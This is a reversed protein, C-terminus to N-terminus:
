RAAIVTSSLFDGNDSALSAQFNETSGNSVLENEPAESFNIAESFSGSLNLIGNAASLSEGENTGSEGFIKFWLQDGTASFETVLINVPSSELSGGALKSEGAIQAAAFINGQADLTIATPSGTFGNLWKLWLVTGESDAKGLYIKGELSGVTIISGDSTTVSEAHDPFTSDSARSAAVGAGTGSQVVALTQQLTLTEQDYFKISGSRSASNANPLVTYQINANNTGSAPTVNTIWDVDAQAIWATNATLTVNSKGGSAPFGSSTPTIGYFPAAGTQVIRVIQQVVSDSDLIRIYGQREKGSNADVTYSITANTTGSAPLLDHIWSSDSQATWGCRATLGVSIRGGSSPFLLYTYGVTFNGSIGAQSVTFQSRVVSDADLVKVTAIRSGCSSNAAVSFNIKANGVGSSPSVGNLWNADSQLHWGATAFLQANSSGGESTFNFNTVTFSYSAAPSSQGITLTQKVVHNADLIQITGTRATVNTNPAVSYTITANGSGASPSIGGIWPVDSVATWSALATLSVNTTAGAAGFVANTYNLSHSLPIGSQSIVFTKRLASNGDYIKISGSRGSNSSNAAVTFLITSNDSGNASSTVTVWNADSQVSWLCNATLIVSGNGGNTPFNASSSSLSYDAPMGAQTVTIAASNVYFVGTRNTCSDNAEISYTVLANTDMRNAAVSVSIWPTSNSVDWDESNSNVVTVVGNTGTSSATIASPSVSFALSSEVTLSRSASSIETKKLDRLSAMASDACVFTAVLAACALRATKAIRFNLLNKGSNQKRM